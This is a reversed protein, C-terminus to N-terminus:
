NSTNTKRRNCDDIITNISSVCKTYVKWIDDDSIVENGGRLQLAVTFMDTWMKYYRGLLQSCRKIRDSTTNAYEENDTETSFKYYCYLDRILLTVFHYLSKKKAKEYYEKLLHIILNM